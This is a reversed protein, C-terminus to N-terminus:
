SDLAELLLQVDLRRRVDVLLLPPWYGLAALREGYDAAAPGAGTQHRTIGIVLREAVLMPALLTTCEALDALPDTRGHDLLVIAAEAGLEGHLRAGLLATPAAQCHLTRDPLRVPGGEPQGLSALAIHKDGGSPGVFYVKAAPARASPLEAPEPHATVRDLLTSGNIFRRVANPTCACRLAAQAVNRPRRFALALRAHESGLGPRVVSGQVCLFHSDAYGLLENGSTQLSLWGVWEDLAIPTGLLPACPQILARFRLEPADGTRADIAAGRVAGSQPHLWWVRGDDAEVRVGLHPPLKLLTALLEDASCTYSGLGIPEAFTNM